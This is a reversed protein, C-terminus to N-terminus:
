NALLFIALKLITGDAYFQLLSPFHGMLAFQTRIYWVAIPLQHKSSSRTDWNVPDTYKMDDINNLTPGLFSRKTSGLKAVANTKKMITELLPKKWFHWEMVQIVKAIKTMQLVVAMKDFGGHGLM